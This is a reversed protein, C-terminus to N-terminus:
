GRYWWGGGLYVDFTVGVISGHTNPTVGPHVRVFGPGAHPNARILLGPYRSVPEVSSSVLTFVGVRRPFGVPKGAAVQDALRDMGSRAALFAVHLPWLTWITLIPLVALLFVTLGASEVSAAYFARSPRPGADDQTALLTWAWGLAAITPIADVVLGLATITYSGPRPEICSFVAVFNTVVTVSWFGYRGLHRHGRVVLWRAGTWSLFPISLVTVIWRWVAPLALLAAVVAIAIMLNGITLQGLPRRTISAEM